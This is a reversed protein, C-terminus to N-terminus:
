AVGGVLRFLEDVRDSYWKVTYGGHADKINTGFYPNQLYWYARWEGKTKRSPRGRHNLITKSFNASDFIKKNKMFAHVTLGARKAVQTTTLLTRSSM